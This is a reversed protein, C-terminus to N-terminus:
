YFNYHTILVIYFAKKAVAHLQCSNYVEGYVAQDKKKKILHFPQYLSMQVGTDRM